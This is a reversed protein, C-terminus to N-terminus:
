ERLSNFINNAKKIDHKIQESLEEKSNFKIEDRLRQIFEVIIEKNYLDGSFDFIYTEFNLKNQNFTPNFGVNTISDYRKNKTLVQTAYVGSKLTHMSKDIKLNATPFGLKAGIQKGPMVISRYYHRRGLFKNAENINGESLLKRILTSSVRMDDVVIPDIIDLTYNYENQMRALLDINGKANKGFRFDYGIVLHKVDLHSLLVNEIFEEASINMHQKNFEILILYDVDMQNILRVKEDLSIINKVEQNRIVERPINSFTFVVSKIGDKKCKDVMSKIVKEHGIHLGDFTGITAGVECKINSIEDIDFFVEM